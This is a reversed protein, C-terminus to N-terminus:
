PHQPESLVRVKWDSALQGLYRQMLLGDVEPYRRPMDIPFALAAAPPREELNRSALFGEV